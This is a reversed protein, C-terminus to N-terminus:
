TIFQDIDYASYLFSDQECDREAYYDHTSFMDVHDYAETLVTNEWAGFTEMQSNSSGCAILELGPDEQRMARATETALRAYEEAPKHGTQWPGDMENGLGWTRIGHSEPSGNAARQDSLPIGQPAHAVQRVDPPRASGRPG